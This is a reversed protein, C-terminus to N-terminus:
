TYLTLAEESLEPQPKEAGSSGKCRGIPHTASDRMAPGRLTRTVRALFYTHCRPEAAARTCPWRQLAEWLEFAACRGHPFSCQM